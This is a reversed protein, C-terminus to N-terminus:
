NNAPLVHSDYNNNGVITSLTGSEIRERKTEFFGVFDIHNDNLFDGLCQLKGPQGLGRINWFAGIM